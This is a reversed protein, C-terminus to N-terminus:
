EEEFYNDWDEKAKSELHWIYKDLIYEIREIRQEITPM